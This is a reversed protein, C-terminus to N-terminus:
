CPLDTGTSCWPKWAANGKKGFPRGPKCSACWFGKNGYGKGINWNQLEGQPTNQFRPSRVTREREEAVNRVMFLVYSCVCWFPCLNESRLVEETAAM